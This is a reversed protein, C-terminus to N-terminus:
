RSLIASRTVAFNEGVLRILYVGSSLNKPLLTLGTREYAKIRRDALTQVRRGSVDYLEVRVQQDKSVILDILGRERFPNPYVHSVEAPGEIGRLVEIVSSFAFTGDLDLQRLRFAHVGPGPDPVVYEYSHRELTTGSGEVFGVQDWEEPACSDAAPECRSPARHEVGFGANDTESATSWSLVIAGKDEVGLFSTIEVPLLPAEPDIVRLTVSTSDSSNNSADRLRYAFRDIGAFGTNPTYTLSGDPFAVLTGNDVNDLIATATLAEGDLDIDNMLFGPAAINRATNLVVAYEDDVGIPNRNGEFVEITVTVSDSFHNSADRMRYKFSDTGVFGADPTYIFSGDGFATLGGNDVNDLVATGTLAEGDLDIDNALFGPAAVSISAGARAAYFDDLGLPERNGPPLVEITVVVSDSLNNSADRMRYVFHDLGVFTNDPTYTFSGDPFAVLSGHDVNDLIATATLAEGNLDIDNTLFGPAALSLIDDNAVVFADPLGVPTAGGLLVEIVVTVSDSFNSAVDRMRYVFSDTGTFGPTPDYVFSGDGFASLSGHDVNDLISIATIAEGDLDYDNAIFGPAAISLTHSVVTAYADDVGIPDRNGELIEITVMVSDSFNNSADRMRYVFADSGVFDPDPTYTFSGNGFAALSGHDVNDLIATATLAEGDQDIDNALFGPAAISLMTNSLMTFADPTGVPDRNGAPLVEINVTVSDSLNNSADRMRYVFADSGVFDTDPTYAFSGDPFAVLTGNDVNDLIATATLAEGDLDIDNVLFGPAAVSLTIDNPVVFHDDTGVPGTAETADVKSVVGDEAALVEAEDSTAPLTRVRVATLGPFIGVVQLPEKSDTFTQVYVPVDVSASAGSSWILEHAGSIAQIHIPPDNGKQDVPYQGSEGVPLPAGRQQATLPTPTAIVAFAALAVCAASVGLVRSLSGSSRPMALQHSLTDAPGPICELKRPNNAFNESETLLAM